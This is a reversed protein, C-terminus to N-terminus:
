CGAKQTIKTVQFQVINSFWTLEDKCFVFLCVFLVLVLWDVVLFGLGVWGLVFCFLGGM